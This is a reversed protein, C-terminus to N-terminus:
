NEQQAKNPFVIERKKLEKSTIQDNVHDQSKEKSTIQDDVHDQSKEKDHTLKDNFLSFYIFYKISLSSISFM